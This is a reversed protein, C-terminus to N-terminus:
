CGHQSRLKECTAADAEGSQELQFTEQFTILASRTHPGIIGDVAGCHFGLNNLRGQVGSIETHPDLHGIKLRLEVKEKGLVLTAEKAGPPIPQELIGAENTVGELQEGGIKLVYHEASIPKGAALLCIKLKVPGDKMVFPHRKEVPRGEYRLDKKPVVIKDGPLLVNPNKRKERLASNQPLTWLTKWSFGYSPAISSFCDGQKVHHDPV